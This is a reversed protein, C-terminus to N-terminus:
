RDNELDPFFAAMVWDRFEDEIWNALLRLVALLRYIGQFTDTIGIQRPGLIDIKSGRDAAFYLTWEHDNTLILSLTPLLPGDRGGGGGLTAMRTHWAATWIGLQLRGEESSAGAIKTEITVAIPARLLPPYDTHNVGLISSGTSPWQAALKNQIAADIAVNRRARQPTAGARNDITAFKPSLVFDVMKGEVTEGTALAPIFVPLIVKGHKWLAMELLPEHVKSNWSAESRRLALCERAVTELHRIHHFEARALRTPTTSPQDAALPLAWIPLFDLFSDRRTDQGADRDHEEPEQGSGQSGHEAERFNIPLFKRNLLEIEPRVEAPFIGQDFTLTKWLKSFLDRADEPLSYTKLPSASRTRPKRLQRDSTTNTTAVSPPASTASSTLLPRHPFKAALPIAFISNKSQGTQSTQDPDVADPIGRSSGSNGDGDGDGTSGVKRKKTSGSPLLSFPPTAM